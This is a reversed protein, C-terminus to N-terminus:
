AVVRAEGGVFVSEIVLNDDLVVVDAPLGVDLRGVDSFGLARAPVASAASLADELSTGLAHLNRVADIMTLLSGALMGEPARVAGDQVLLEVSGLTYAGGNGSAAMVADTVLVVRGAAARWVLAATAPALHIGDLIIEVFVDDRVLAAGVIGPERHNFPRMANFLHTVMRAGRDFAATAQEATADSHGCSVTVGRAVLDDILELAGPLEPALTMMRVPGAALLRELLAPDPDRRGDSRHTGLRREALFPGELHVGLIRPGISATPVEALAALVDEEPATILTPLFSTVGTELLAEGARSYGDADTELFDVGGFGNVQVDVFGPVAIGRGNSGGLGVGAVRGDVVEVDGTVLLGGVLAAEVGLRM